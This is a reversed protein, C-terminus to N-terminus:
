GVLHNRLRFDLREVLVEGMVTTREGEFAASFASDNWIRTARDLFPLTLVRVVAPGVAMGRSFLADISVVSVLTPPVLTLPLDLLPLTPVISLGERRPRRRGGLLGSGGGLAGKGGTGGNPGTTDTGTCLRLREIDKTGLSRPSDTFRSGSGGNGGVGGEYSGFIQVLNAFHMARGCNVLGHDDTQM